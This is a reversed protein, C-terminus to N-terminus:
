LSSTHKCYPYNGCGLFNGYKGSKIYMRSNCKPCKGAQSVDASKKRPSSVNSTKKCSNCFRGYGSTLSADKFDEINKLELCKPCEKINGNQIGAYNNQLNSLFTNTVDVNRVQQSIRDDLTEVPNKGANFKNIRIFKYGYSELVKQRYIDDDSYYNEYNNENVENTQIFHEVFGDYEVIIKHEGNTNKYIILFDVKYNPHTYTKDLQKLYKGIEFQPNFQISDKNQNWFKTQYFWNLVEPEMPSNPDVRDAGKEKKAEDLIFSYYRLAEGISGNYQDLPKSLVFHVCEKARSFGVNLRQAKIQGDEEIDVSKLDKIFIAWLKDSHKSAVMSYFILDREEGQCTDFTMIKLDLDKRFFDSEALQFIKDALLKQQNTHPTIIGVSIPKNSAKIKLLEQIIFEVEKINTNPLPSDTESPDVYSFKIVENVNKGLIKMVQLSDKYFYHNSYSILEKYGRFHKQLQITYNSIFELFELISTKINFKELRKQKSVENSIHKNFSAKLGNLYEQNTNSRAQAAKINSFQKRDGLILVKKARILAPFAQAISVQSAEDIIVLDFIEPELPIYEAYDRIGALICPFAQKLKAFEEKPFKQKSKIIDRLAVADNKHYEFFDILRGDLLYTVQSTIQSELDKMRNLYNVEPINSFNKNIKHSLYLYRIQHEYEIKSISIAKNSAITNINSLDLGIKNMTNPYKEEILKLFTINSEIKLFDKYADMLDSTFSSYIIEVPDIFRVINKNARQQSKLNYTAVKYVTKLSELEEFANTFQHNEFFNDFRQNILNVKGKAFLTGFLQQKIEECTNIIEKLEQIKENDLSSFQTILDIDDDYLKELSVLDGLLEKIFEKLDYFDNLTKLANSNIGFADYILNISKSNTIVQFEEINNRIESLENATETWSKIEDQDFIFENEKLYAELKVHELIEKLSIQDYSHIEASIDDRLTNATKVLSENIFENEKKAARHHTKINEISSKALISSYTNGTKGLRLVPNQFNKDFRVKNMTQIIKDEVVDLAEKKDSLVLVSQDKLIANFVIATITHSKGNGPPGEVLTYKCGKKSIASIIQRQESNLPIPSTHVLKDITDLNDWEEEVEPNIPTPNKHIFDDLLKHFIDALLGGNLNLQTLIEEYDNVLAEDSKDFLTIYCNNSIKASAGRSSMSELKSFSISEKIEFFQTLENCITNLYDPLSNAHQALYIIRESTKELTGKSGKLDNFEQAIYELAKKNIYVQSDFELDMVDDTRTLSFPIYFIPYRNNNFTIDGFYLYFDQKDLINKNRDMEYMESFLDAVGLTEFFLTLNNKIDDLSFTAKLAKILDIKEKAIFRNLLDSINNELLRLLIATLEEEILYINDEDGLELQTLTKEISEVFPAILSKRILKETESLSSNVANNLEKSYQTGAIEIEDAIKILLDTIQKETIKTIQLKILDLLNKPLNTKYIGKKISNLNEKSFGKSILKLVLKQFVPYKQLNIGILLNDNNRFKIIRRPAKHKHFDTELFDMFYKAVEKFFELSPLIQNKNKSNGAVKSETKWSGLTYEKQKKEKTM